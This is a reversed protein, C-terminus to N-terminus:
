AAARVPGRHRHPVAGWRKFWGRASIQQQQKDAFRMFQNAFLESPLTRELLGGIYPDLSDVGDPYLEALLAKRRCNNIFQIIFSLSFPSFHVQIDTDSTLDSWTNIPALGLLQRATNYDPM